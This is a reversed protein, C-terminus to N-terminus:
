VATNEAMATTMPTTSTSTTPGPRPSESSTRAIAAAAPAAPRIDIPLFRAVFPMVGTRARQLLLVEGQASM